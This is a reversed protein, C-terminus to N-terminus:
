AKFVLWGFESCDVVASSPGELRAVREVLHGNTCDEIFGQLPCSLTRTSLRIALM